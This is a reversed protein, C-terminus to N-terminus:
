GVQSHNGGSVTLGQFIWCPVWGHINPLRNEKEVPHNEEHNKPEINVDERTYNFELGALWDPFFCTAYIIDWAASCCEKSFVQVSGEMAIQCKLGVFVCLLGLPTSFLQKLALNIHIIIKWMKELLCDGIDQNTEM